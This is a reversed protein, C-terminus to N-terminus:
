KEPEPTPTSLKKIENLSARLMFDLTESPITNNKERLFRYAQRVEKELQTTESKVPEPNQDLTKLKTDLGQGELEKWHDIKERFEEVTYSKKEPKSMREFESHRTEAKLKLYANIHIIVDERQPQKCMVAIFPLQSKYKERVHKSIAIFAEM